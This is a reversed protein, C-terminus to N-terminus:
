PNATLFHTGRPFVDPFNPDAYRVGTCRPIYCGPNISMQYQAWLRHVDLCYAGNSTWLGEYSKEGGGLLKWQRANEWRLPTGQVTWPTGDGCLDSTYMKLMAQREYRNTTHTSDSGPTTHRNLHLKALVSGACAINFWGGASAYDAATVTLADADYRDGTFLIAELPAPWYSGDGQEKVNPPNSCLARPSPVSPGTYGLEYTEVYGGGIWFKTTVHVGLIHIAYTDVGRQLVLKSGVLGPGSLAVEYPNSFPRAYLRDREVDARFSKGDKELYLLKFGADNVAGNEDLEHFQYGTVLPGNTGCGWKPCGDSDPDYIIEEAATGTTPDDVCAALALALPLTALWATLKM